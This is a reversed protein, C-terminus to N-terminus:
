FKGGDCVCNEDIEPAADYRGDFQVVDKGGGLLDLHM